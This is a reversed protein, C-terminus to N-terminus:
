LKVIKSNKHKLINRTDIILNADQAVLDYNVNTHVTIIIVCDSNNLLNKTLKKSKLNIDDLELKPVNPDHYSIKSGKEKLLHIIQLAPSERIDSVDKKYSVGLILIKSGKFTKGRDNLADQTKDVVFHPMYNNIQTALEVLRAELGHAKAKWSLFTPDTPICHGGIGPGPYFPMFGFPKSKAADIVEWVNINMKDCILTIENALAINVNRFVNEYLKVMEAANASSVLIVTDIVNAYLTKALKGCNKTIGGIVKPINYTKYERNGPDVREPSFALCFDKDVKLESKELEPLIIEETTGPYTTSELIILQGKHLYKKIEEVASLIYSIDPDRTKRLPTPVCIIVVDQTKLKKYDLTAELMKKNVLSKLTESDVDEIYSIGKKINSIRTTDTDIGCVKFGVKAFETALPLGVYGLGIIAINSSKSNIKQLLNKM